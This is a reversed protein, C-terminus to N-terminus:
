AKGMSKAGFPNENQALFPTGKQVLFRFVSQNERYEFNM